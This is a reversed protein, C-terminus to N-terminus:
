ATEIVDGGGKIMTNLKLLYANVKLLYVLVITIVSGMAIEIDVLPVLM